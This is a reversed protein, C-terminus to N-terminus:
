RRSNLQEENGKEAVADCGAMVVVVVVVVVVVAVVVVVSSAGVGVVVWHPLVANDNDLPLPSRSCVASEATIGAGEVSDM